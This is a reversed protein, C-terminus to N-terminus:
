PCQVLALLSIRLSAHQVSSVFPLLFHMDCWQNPDGGYVASYDYNYNTPPM